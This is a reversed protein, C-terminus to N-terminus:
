TIQGSHPPSLSVHGAGVRRMRVRAEFVKSNSVENLDRAETSDAQIEGFGNGEVANRLL